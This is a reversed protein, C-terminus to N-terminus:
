DDTVEILIDTIHGFLEKVGELFRRTDDQVYANLKPTIDVPNQLYRELADYFTKNAINALTTITRVPIRLVINALALEMPTPRMAPSKLSDVANNINVIKCNFMMAINEIIGRIYMNENYRHELQRVFLWFRIEELRQKALLSVELKLNLYKGKHAM